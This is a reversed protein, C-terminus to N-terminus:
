KILVNQTSGKASQVKIIYAGKPLKSTNLNITSVKNYQQNILQKGSVDLLQVKYDDTESLKITVKNNFPNPYVSLDLTNQEKISLNTNFPNNYEIKDIVRLLKLGQRNTFALSRNDCALSIEIAYSGNIKGEMNYDQTILQSVLDSIVEWTVRITNENLYELDKVKQQSFIKM